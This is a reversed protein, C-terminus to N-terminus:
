VAYSESLKVTNGDTSALGASLPTKAVLAIFMIHNVKLMKQLWGQRKFTKEVRKKTAADGCTIVLKPKLNDPRKRVMM